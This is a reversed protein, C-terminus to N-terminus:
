MYIRISTYNLQTHIDIINERRKHYFDSIPIDYIYITFMFSCLPDYHINRAFGAATEVRTPSSACYPPDFIAESDDLSIFM